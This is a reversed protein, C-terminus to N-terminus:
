SALGQSEYRYTVVATAHLSKTLAARVVATGNKKSEVHLCLTDGPIAPTQLQVDITELMTDNGLVEEVARQVLGVTTMINLFIDRGGKQRAREKDLHVDEFDRTATSAAVVFRPTIPFRLAPTTQSVAPASIHQAATVPKPRFVFLVLETTGIYGRDSSIESRETVFYGSGVTTEKLSSCKVIRANRRLREGFQIPRGYDQTIRVAMTGTYGIGSLLTAAQRLPDVVNGEPYASDYGPMTWCHLMGTPVNDRRYRPNSIGLVQCWNRVSFRDVPDWASLSVPPGDLLQEIITDEAAAGNM